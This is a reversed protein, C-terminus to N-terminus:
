CYFSRNLALFNVIRWETFASMFSYGFASIYVELEVSFWDIIELDLYDPKVVSTWYILKM